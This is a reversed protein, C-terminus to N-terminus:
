IVGPQFFMAPQDLFAHFAEKQSRVLSDRRFQVAGHTIGAFRSSFPYPRYQRQFEATEAAPIRLLRQGKGPRNFHNVGIRQGM